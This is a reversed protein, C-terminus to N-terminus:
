PTRTRARASPRERRISPASSSTTNAVSAPPGRGTIATDSWDIYSNVRVKPGAVFPDLFIGVGANNLVDPQPGFANGGIKFGGGPTYQDRQRATADYVREILPTKAGDVGDRQFTMGNEFLAQGDPTLNGNIGVNIAAPSPMFDPGDQSGGCTPLFTILDFLNRTRRTDRAAAIIRQLLGTGVATVQQPTLSQEAAVDAVLQDETYDEQYSVRTSVGAGSAKPVVTYHFSM